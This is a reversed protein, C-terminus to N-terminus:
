RCRGGCPLNCKDCIDFVVDNHAKAWDRFAKTKRLTDEIIGTGVETLYDAVEQSVKISKPVSRSEPSAKRGAGERKGGHSM